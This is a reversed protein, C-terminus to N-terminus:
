EVIRRKTAQKQKKFLFLEKFSKRELLQHLLVLCLMSVPFFVIMGSWDHWTTSAFEPDHYHAILCISSVRFANGIIAVPICAGVFIVFKWPKLDTIYAYASGLMILSVLSRIGSCGGTVNFPGWNGNAAYINAGQLVTDVGGLGSLVVAFQSALNQLGVTAHQFSPLPIALWFFFLPFAVIKAVNWGWIFHVGACIIIPLAAMALRPQLTRFAALYFVGGILLGLIGINKSLWTDQQCQAASVIKDKKILLMALILPPVLIGHEMNYNPNWNIYGWHLISYTADNGRAMEFIGFFYVLIGLSCLLGIWKYITPTNPLASNSM